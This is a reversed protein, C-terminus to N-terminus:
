LSQLTVVLDVDLLDFVKSTKKLTLETAGREMNSYTKLDVKLLTAMQLQTYGKMIRAVKIKARIKDSLTEMPKFFYGPAVTVESVPIIGM